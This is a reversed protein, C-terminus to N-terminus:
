RHEEMPDNGYMSHGDVDLHFVPTLEDGMCKKSKPLLSPTVSYCISVSRGPLVAFILREVLLSRSSGKFPSSQVESM